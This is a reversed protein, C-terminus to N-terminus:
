RKSKAARSMVPQLMGENPSKPASEGEGEESTPLGDVVSLVVEEDSNLRGM